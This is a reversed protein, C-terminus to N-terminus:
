VLGTGAPGQEPEAGTAVDLELRRVVERATEEPREESPVVVV